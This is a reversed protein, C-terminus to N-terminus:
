ACRKKGALALCLWDLLVQQKNLIFVADHKWAYRLLKLKDQWSLTKDRLRRYIGAFVLCNHACGILWRFCSIVSVKPSLIKRHVNGEFNEELVVDIFMRASQVM